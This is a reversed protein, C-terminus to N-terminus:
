DITTERDVSRVQTAADAQQISLPLDWTDEDPHMEAARRVNPILGQPRVLMVVVLTLGFLFIRWQTPDVSVTLFDKVAPSEVHPVVTTNLTDKLLTALQPLLVRDSLLIILGGVIVGTMNGVGGLIVMALIIVSVTFDFVSPFIATIYSAYFVGALGAITAGMAFAMLKTNVLNIGMSSAALEDERMASWARGLRSYRLRNIFFISLAIIALILVYWPIYEGTQFSGVVPVWPRAIPNIGQEGATVNLPKICGAICIGTFPLTLTVTTLNRFVVPVIEGFGLTVIALYDGTLPLTPAGLLLGFCAVIAAAIWIVLWFSWEQQYFECNFGSQNCLHPSLLLGTAYAGIAFFAAYGLDLLGAYGVVINLGLALVVFIMISIMQEIWGLGAAADLAPYLALFTLLLIALGLRRNKDPLSNIWGTLAGIALALVLGALGAVFMNYPISIPGLTFPPFVPDKGALPLVLIDNVIEAILIFVGVIAGSIVGNRLTASRDRISQGETVLAAAAGAVIGALIASWGGFLLVVVAAVIGIGVGVKVPHTM